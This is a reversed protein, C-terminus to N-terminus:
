LAGAPEQSRKFRIERHYRRTSPNSREAPDIALEEVPVDLAKALLELNAPEPYSTGNLYHGIRDRNRAVEYGRKDRTTGWVERALDSASIDKRLMAARLAEAFPRYEPRSQIRTVVNQLPVSRRIRPRVHPAEPNVDQQTSANEDDLAPDALLKEPVAIKTPRRAAQAM